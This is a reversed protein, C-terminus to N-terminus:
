PGDRVRSRCRCAMEPAPIVNARCRFLERSIALLSPRFVQTRSTMTKGKRVVTAVDRAAPGSDCSWVYRMPSGTPLVGVAYALACKKGYIPSSLARLFRRPRSSTASKELPMKRLCTIGIFIARAHCRVRATQVDLSVVQRRKCM